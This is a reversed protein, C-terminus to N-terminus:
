ASRRVRGAIAEAIRESEFGMERINGSAPNRYGIFFLGPLSSERGHTLPYGRRDTVREAGDLFEHLGAKFGTALVVVDAEAVRGDVLKLGRPTFGRVGPLVQIRGQKVLRITGIDLIPIRGYKRVMAYMGERPKRIGYRSLDGVMLRQIPRTVRDVV